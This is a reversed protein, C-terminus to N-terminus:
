GRKSLRFFCYSGRSVNLKGFDMSSYVIFLLIAKESVPCEAIIIIGHQLIIQTVHPSKKVIVVIVLVMLNM